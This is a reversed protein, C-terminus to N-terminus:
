GQAVVVCNKGARKAQEMAAQAADMLSLATIGHPPHAAIGVSVTIREVDKRQILFTHEEIRARMREAGVRAMDSSTEPFLVAFRGGSLRAVIDSGRLHDQVLRATEAIVQDGFQSGYRDNIRRLDDMDVVACSVPHAYRNARAIESRLLTLFHSETYVGTLSDHVQADEVEQAFMCRSYALSLFPRVRVLPSLPPPETEPSVAYVVASVAGRHALGLALFNRCGAFAMDQSVPLGAGVYVGSRLAEKLPLPLSSRAYAPSPRGPEQRAGPGSHALVHLTPSEEKRQLVMVTAGPWQEAVLESCAVAFDALQTIPSLREAAMMLFRDGAQREELRSRCDAHQDQERALDTRAKVVAERVEEVSRRLSGLLVDDEPAWPREGRLELELNALPRRVRVGIVYWQVAVGLVLVLLASIVALVALASGRVGAIRIGGALVFVGVGVALLGMLPVVSGWLLKSFARHLPLTPAGKEQPEDQFSVGPENM